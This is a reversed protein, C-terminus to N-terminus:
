LAYNMSLNWSVPIDELLNHRLSLSGSWKSTFTKQLSSTLSRTHSDAERRDVLSLTFQGNTAFILTAQANWQEFTVDTNESIDAQKIEFLSRTEGTTYNLTLNVSDIPKIAGLGITLQDAEIFQQQSFPEELGAVEFFTLGDTVTRSVSANLSFKPHAYAYSLSGSLNETTNDDIETFNLAGSASLSYRPTQFQAGLNVSTVQQGSDSLQFGAGGQWSVRPSSNLMLRYNYNASRDDVQSDDSSLEQYVNVERYQATASFQHNLTLSQPVSVSLALSANDSITLVDIDLQEAEQHGYSLSGSILRSSSAWGLQNQSQWTEPIFDAQSDFLTSVNSQLSFLPNQHSLSISPSLQTNIPDGSVVRGSLSGSWDTQAIASSSLLLICLRLQTKLISQTM